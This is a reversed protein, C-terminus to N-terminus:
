VIGNIYYAEEILSLMFTYPIWCFGEGDGWGVFNNKVLFYGTDNKYNDNFGLICIVHNSPSNSNQIDKTTKPDISKDDIDLTKIRYLRDNQHVAVVVPHKLSLAQKIWDLSSNSFKNNVEKTEFGTIKYRRSNPPLQNEIKSFKECDCDYDTSFVTGVDKLIQLSINATGYKGCYPSRKFISLTSNHYSAVFGSCFYKKEIETKDSIDNSINYETSLATYVVAYAYCTARYQVKKRPCYESLNIKTKM